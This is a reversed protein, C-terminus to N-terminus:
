STFNLKIFRRKGCQLVVSKVGAPKVWNETKIVENEIKVSGQGVLRKGESTSAAFGLEVLVKPLWFDQGSLTKEEIDTPVGKQAFVHEFADRAQKGREEDYFRTVIEVAFESKVNKPHIEGKKLKEFLNFIESSSKASLLDYYKRMSADPLSMLKGYIQDPSEEVGVYNGLSKSMKQVGDLGELLPFTMCIQPELGYDKMLERGLLLNFIQDRGGLEIDAKMEVSDYAQLLPYLFEHLSISQGEKYRTKFDERELM